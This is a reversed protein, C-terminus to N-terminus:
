RRRQHVPLAGRRLADTPNYPSPPTEGRAPTPATDAAVPRNYASFTDGARGGIGMQMPGAAAAENTASHVGPLGSRGFDSEVKAIAAPITWSLGPCTASAAVFLELYDPPIDGLAHPSPADAAAGALAGAIVAVALVVLVPIALVGAVVLRGLKV